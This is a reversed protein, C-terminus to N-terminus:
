WSPLPLVSIWFDNNELPDHFRVRDGFQIPHRHERPDSEHFLRDVTLMVGLIPGHKDLAELAYASCTPYMPCRPGDVPSIFKQFFRVGAKLPHFDPADKGRLANKGLPPMSDWPGWPAAQAPTMLCLLLLILVPVRIM